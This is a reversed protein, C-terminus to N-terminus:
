LKPENTMELHLKYHSELEEYSEFAKKCSGCGYELAAL